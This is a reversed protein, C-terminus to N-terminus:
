TSQLTVDLSAEIATGSIEGKWGYHREGTLGSELAGLLDKVVAGDLEPDGLTGLIDSEGRVLIKAGLRPARDRSETTAGADPSVEIVTALAVPDEARLCDRLAAYLESM